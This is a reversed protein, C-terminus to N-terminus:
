KKLFRGFPEDIFGAPRVNEGEYKWDGLDKRAEEILMKMKKEISPHQSLVNQKESIDTSLDYLQAESPLKKESNATVIRQKLALHYKWKGCRIAQLQNRQFYYFIRDGEFKKKGEIIKSIDIGDIKNQPKYKIRCFSAITPLMDMSTVIETCTQNEPIIGPYRIICPVRFGGEYTSAKWDRLPLNTGGAGRAAGNDSAFIVLTNKDLGQEKLTKLIEGISWDLEEVADGYIGNASKGKFRPSADLPRHTMCHPLYLFFPKKKNRVIFDQAKVTLKITLSDTGVPADIVEEQEMLPLPCYSKGMDHSYPLGFFYDFGQRTPLFALQDGLHWKGICATQYGNEKMLEAITYESPNLGKMSIPFLVQRSKGMLPIPDANVHMSVRKPYSGTMLASRSPSSVSSGVYFDTLRVGEKAMQDFNPTRNLKNGYCALDGYGFDDAFILVVNPRKAADGFQALSSLGLLLLLKNTM